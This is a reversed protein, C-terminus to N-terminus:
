KKLSNVASVKLGVKEIGPLPDDKMVQTISLRYHPAADLPLSGLFPVSLQYLGGVSSGLWRGHDDALICQLTDRRILSDTLNHDIQLWLNRYPFHHNSSLEISLDYREGMNIDLSDMTFLLTSDHYWNGKELQYFRYYVEGESCSLLSSFLVGAIFLLM